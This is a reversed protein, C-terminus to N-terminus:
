ANGKLRAVEAEADALQKAKDAKAKEDATQNAADSIAKVKDLGALAQVLTARLEIETQRAAGALQSQTGSLSVLKATLDDRESKVEALADKLAGIADDAIAKQAAFDAIAKAQSDSLSKDAVALKADSVGQATVAAQDAEKLQESLQAALSEQATKLEAAADEKMKAITAEHATDKDALVAKYQEDLADTATKLLSKELDNLADLMPGRIAENGAASANFLVDVVGGQPLGDVLVNTLSKIEITM